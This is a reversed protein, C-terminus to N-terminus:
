GLASHGPERPSVSLQWTLAPVLTRGLSRLDPSSGWLDVRIFQGQAPRGDTLLEGQKTSGAGM